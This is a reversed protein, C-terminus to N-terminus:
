SIMLRALIEFSSDQWDSRNLIRFSPETFNSIWLPRHNMPYFPPLIDSQLDDLLGPVGLRSCQEIATRSKVTADYFAIRLMPSAALISVGGRLKFMTVPSDHTPVKPLTGFESLPKPLNTGVLRGM